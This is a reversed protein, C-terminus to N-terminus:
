DVNCVLKHALNPQGQYFTELNDRYLLVLNGVFVYFFVFFGELEARM